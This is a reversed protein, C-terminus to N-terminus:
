EKLREQWIIEQFEKPTVKRFDKPLEFLKAEAEPKFNKMEVSFTLTKQEGEGGSYFEQKVPLKLNEDVYILIESNTKEAEGLRVRFKSIGNETGLSEFGASQKQNLWETTLFDNTEDRGSGGGPSSETYIRKGRHISITVGAANLDLRAIEGKQGPNFVTLRSEGNRATFIKREQTEGGDADAAYTRNIIETQYIEPEKTSFPIESKIDTAVFPTPSPM